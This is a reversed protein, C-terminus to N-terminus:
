GVSVIWRLTVVERGGLKDDFFTRCVVRRAQELGFLVSSDFRQRIEDSECAIMEAIVVREM